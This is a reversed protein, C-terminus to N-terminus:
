PVGHGLSAIVAQMQRKGAARDPDRYAAVIRQYVGWTVELEVHADCSFVARLRAAQRGTLLGQGTHLVRRIGYLPDGACGRPARMRSVPSVPPM